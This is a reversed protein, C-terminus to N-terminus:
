RVWDLAGHDGLLSIRRLDSGDARMRYLGGYGMVMVEGGDPATNPNASGDGGDGELLQTGTVVGAPFIPEDALPVGDLDLGMDLNDNLVTLPVGMTHMIKAVRRREMLSDSLAEVNNTDYWAFRNNGFEPALALNITGQLRDMFPIMTQLWHHRLIVDMNGVSVGEMVAIVSPFIGFITCISQRNLGRSKIFDMEVPTLSMQHVEVPNGSIFVRRADATTSQENFRRRARSYAEPTLEDKYSVVVDPVFRNRAANYNWKAFQVDTDVARSAATLPAMGWVAERPAVFRFHVIDQPDYEKETDPNVNKGEPAYLYKTPVQGDTEIEVAQPFLPWLQFPTKYGRVGEVKGRVKVQIGNGGLLMHQINREMFEQRTTFPNPNTLIQELPDNPKPQMHAKREAGWRGRIRKKHADRMFDARQSPPVSEYEWQFLAKQEQDTFASVRWPVSAAHRTYANVCAFVWENIEFGDKLARDLDWKAFDTFPQRKTLAPPVERNSGRAKVGFAESIGAKLDDVFSM